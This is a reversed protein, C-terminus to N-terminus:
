SFPLLLEAVFVQHLHDGFAAAKETNIKAWSYDLKRIPPISVQPRKFNKTAKRLSTDDPSLSTIFQEFTVNRAEKL